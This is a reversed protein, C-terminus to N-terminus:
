VPVCDIIIINERLSLFRNCKIRTNIYRDSDILNNSHRDTTTKMRISKPVGMIKDMLKLLYCLTCLPSSGIFTSFYFNVGSGNWYVLSFFWYNLLFIDVGVTKYTSNCKRRLYILNIKFFFLQQVLNGHIILKFNVLTLCDITYIIFIIYILM